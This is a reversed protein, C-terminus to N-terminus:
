IVKEVATTIVKILRQSTTKIDNCASEILEVVSIVSIRYDTLYRCKLNFFFISSLWFEISEKEKVDDLKIKEVVILDGFWRCPHPTEVGCVRLYVYSSKDKLNVVIKYTLAKLILVM